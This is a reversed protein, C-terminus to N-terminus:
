YLLTTILFMISLILTGDVVLEFWYELETDYLWCDNMYGKSKTQSNSGGWICMYRDNVLTCAHSHRDPPVIGNKINIRTWTYLETQNQLALLFFFCCCGFVVLFFLRM